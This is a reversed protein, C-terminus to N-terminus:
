KCFTQEFHVKIISFIFGLINENEDELQFHSVYGGSKKYWLVIKM